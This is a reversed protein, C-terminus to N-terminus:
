CEVVVDRILLIDFSKKTFVEWIILHAATEDEYTDVGSSAGLFQYM